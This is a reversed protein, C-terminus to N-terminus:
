AAKVSTFYFEIFDFFFLSFTKKFFLRRTRFRARSHRHLKKRQWFTASLDSADCRRRREGIASISKM